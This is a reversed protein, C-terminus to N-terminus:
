FSENGRILPDNVTHTDSPIYQYSHNYYLCKWVSNWEDPQPFASPYTYSHEQSYVRFLSYGTLEFQYRGSHYLLEEHITNWIYRGRGEPVAQNHVIGSNTGVCLLFMPLLVHKQFPLNKLIEVAKM